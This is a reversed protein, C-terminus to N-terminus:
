DGLYLMQMSLQGEKTYESPCDLDQCEYRQECIGQHEATSENKHGKIPCTWFIWWKGQTM